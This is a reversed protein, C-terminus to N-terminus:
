RGRRLAKYDYGKRFKIRGRLERLDLRSHDEVYKELAEHILEKKTRARSFRFAKKLLEDDIVINTRM